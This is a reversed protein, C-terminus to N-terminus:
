EVTPDSGMALERTLAVLDQDIGAYGAGDTDKTSSQSMSQHSVSTSEEMRSFVISRRFGVIKANNFQSLGSNNTNALQTRRMTSNNGDTTSDATATLGMNQM